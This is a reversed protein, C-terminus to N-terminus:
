TVLVKSCMDLAALQTVAAGSSGILHTVPTYHLHQRTSSVWRPRLYNFSVAQPEWTTPKFTVGGVNSVNSGAIRQLIKAGPATSYLVFETTDRHSLLLLLLLLQPDQV